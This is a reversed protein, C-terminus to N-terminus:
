KREYIVNRMYSVDFDRIFTPIYFLKEYINILCELM